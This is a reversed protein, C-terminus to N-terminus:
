DGEQQIEQVTGGRLVAQIGYPQVNVSILTTFGVLVSTGYEMRATKEADSFVAAVTPFDANALAIYAYDPITACFPCDYVTGDAFKITDM